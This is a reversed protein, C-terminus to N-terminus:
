GDNQSRDVLCMLITAELATQHSYVYGLGSLGKRKTREVWQGWKELVEFGRPRTRNGYEARFVSVNVQILMKLVSHGADFPGTIVFPRTLKLIM